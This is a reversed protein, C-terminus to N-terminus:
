EQRYEVRYQAATLPRTPTGQSIWCECGPEQCEYPGAKVDKADRAMLHRSSLHDCPVCEYAYIM